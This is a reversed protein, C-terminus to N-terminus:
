SSEEDEESSAIEQPAEIDIPEDTKGVPQDPDEEGTVVPDGEHPGTGEDPRGSGATDVGEPDDEYDAKAKEWAQWKEEDVHLGNHNQPKQQGAM